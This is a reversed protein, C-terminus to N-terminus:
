YVEDAVQSAVARSFMTTTTYFLSHQPSSAQMPLNIPIQEAAVATVKKVAIVTLLSAAGNLSKKRPM